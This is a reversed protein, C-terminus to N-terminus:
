SQFPAKDSLSHNVESQGPNLSQRKPPLQIAWSWMTEKEM